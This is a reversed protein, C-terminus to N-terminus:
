RRRITAEILGYPETTAVFIENRNELGFKALDVPLHHRNPMVIRISSVEPVTGLVEEGIAHLTHQVSESDHTAFSELLARRVAQWATGFSVAEGDYTWTATLATALLRDRTEPLTTFGDRPFGSFASHSSKLILLDAIGASIDTRQRDMVVSATRLEPGRGVFAQGHERDGVRIRGWLHETIGITVRQLRPNRAIFHGALQLAFREPQDISGGAALAYVTNKMTDTPLVESNDGATYSADYHGEFRISVTLDRVEHHEGHRIVQVLRVGSKGYSTDALM